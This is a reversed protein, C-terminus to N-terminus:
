AWTAPCRLTAQCFGPRLVQALLLLLLLLLLLVVVLHQFLWPAPYQGGANCAYMLSDFCDALATGRM